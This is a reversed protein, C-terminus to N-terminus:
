HFCLDPNSYSSQTQILPNKSHNLLALKFFNFKNKVFKLNFQTNEKKFYVDKIVFYIYM